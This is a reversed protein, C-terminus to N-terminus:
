IEADAEHVMPVSFAKTEPLFKITQGNGLPLLAASVTSRWESLM